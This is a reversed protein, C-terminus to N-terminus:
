SFEPLNDFINQDVLLKQIKSRDYEIFPKYKFYLNRVETWVVDDALHSDIYEYKESIDLLIILTELSIKNSLYLKLINPHQNEPVNFNSLFDEDLNNLDLKVMYTLSEKRLLWDQYVQMGQDDVINGIWKKPNTILNALVVDYPDKCKALKIFFWKDKRKQYSAETASVRGEYKFFDYTKSTFHMKIALYIKYAEFGTM